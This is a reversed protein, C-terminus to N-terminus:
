KILISNFLDKTFDGYAHLINDLKYVNPDFM